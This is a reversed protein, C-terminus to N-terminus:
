SRNVPDLPAQNHSLVSVLNNAATMAMARRTSVSGSGIHPSLVVNELELFEPNLKPEGEYVDLGAAFLTQNKLANILARDDVIGGRAINVLVSHKKMQSLQNEGIMHHTEKSYPLILMVVDSSQLLKDKSVYSANLSAETAPDVPSRAHYLVRMGFGNARKAIEQGIRGFGLLGLTGGYVDVGLLQKFRMGKWQGSRVYREGEGIRRCASIMLGIAYDAVTADLVGPTNTVIVGRRSCAELDVNNYGVATNAIVKVLPAADLFEDDVRDSTATQIGEADSILDFLEDRKFILDQQNAVIDFHTSLLEITESFVERTIVVKKMKIPGTPIKSFEKLRM